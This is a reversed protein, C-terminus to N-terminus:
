ARDRNRSACLRLGLLGIGLLVGTSPEPVVSWRTVEFNVFLSPSVGTYTSIQGRIPPRDFTGSGSFAPLFDRLADSRIEPLFPSDLVLDITSPRVRTSGIRTNSRSYVAFRDVTSGYAPVFADSLIQVWLEPNRLSTSVRNRGIRLDLGFRPDRHIYRGETPSDFSDPTSSDYRFRGVIPTGPMIKRGLSRPVELGLPPGEVFGEFEVEVFTARAPSGGLGVGTLLGIFLGLLCLREVPSHGHTRVSDGLCSRRLRGSSSRMIM